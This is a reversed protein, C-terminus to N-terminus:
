YLCGFFGYRSLIESEMRKRGVVFLVSTTECRAELERAIAIGPFLHGGTGGGAIICRISQGRDETM